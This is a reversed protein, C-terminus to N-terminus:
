CESAYFAYIYLCQLFFPVLRTSFAGGGLIVIAIFRISAIWINWSVHESRRKWTRESIWNGTRESGGGCFFPVLFM